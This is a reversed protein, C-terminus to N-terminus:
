MVTSGYVPGQVLPTSPMMVSSSVPYSYQSTLLPGSYLISKQDSSLSGYRYLQWLCLTGWLLYLDLAVFVLIILVLQLDHATCHLGGTTFAGTIAAIGHVFTGCVNGAVMNTGIMPIMFVVRVAYYLLYRLLRSAASKRASGYEGVSARATRYRAIAMIGLFSFLLGVLCVVLEITWTESFSKLGLFIATLDKGFFFCSM